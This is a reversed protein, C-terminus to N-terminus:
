LWRFSESIIKWPDVNDAGLPSALTLNVQLRNQYFEYLAVDMRYTKGTLENPASDKQYKIFITKGAPL